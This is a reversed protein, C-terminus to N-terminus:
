IGSLAISIGFGGQGLKKADSFNDTAKRICKWYFFPAYIGEVNEERFAGLGLLDKVPKGIEKIFLFCHAVAKVLKRSDLAHPVARNRRDSRKNEPYLFVVM